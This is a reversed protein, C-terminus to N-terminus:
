CGWRAQNELSFEFSSSRSNPTNGGADTSIFVYLPEGNPIDVEYVASGSLGGKDSECVDRIQKIVTKNSFQSKLVANFEDYEFIKGSEESISFELGSIITRAGSFVVDAKGLQQLKTTGSKSFPASPIEKLGKHTWKVSKLKELESWNSSFALQSAIAEITTAFAMVPLAALLLGFMVNKNM